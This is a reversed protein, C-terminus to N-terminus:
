PTLYGRTAIVGRASPSRLYLFFARAAENDAGHRLLVADQDIPQHWDAPAQWSESAVGADMLTSWAVMGAEAAGSAVMAYAQAVNEGYVLKGELSQAPDLRHLVDMAAAGYPALAPNALAIRKLGQLNPIPEPTRGPIWVGLRGRAFTVPQGESLGAAALKAPRERDAALFLDYPAGNVIQAYLKGTSGSTIVLRHGSGTEFDHALSEAVAVFNAAVAVLAEAAKAPTAIACTLVLLVSLMHRVPPVMKQEQNLGMHAHCALM